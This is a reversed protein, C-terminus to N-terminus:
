LDEKNRKLNENRKTKKGPLTEQKKILISKNKLRKEGEMYEQIQQHVPPSSWILLLSVLHFRRVIDDQLNNRNVKMSEKRQATIEVKM